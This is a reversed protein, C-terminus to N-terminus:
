FWADDVLIYGMSVFSSANYYQKVFISPVVSLFVDCAKLNHTIIHEYSLSYPDLFAEIM